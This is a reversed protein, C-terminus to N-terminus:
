KTPKQRKWREESRRDLEALTLGQKTAKELNSRLYNANHAKLSAITEEHKRRESEERKRALLAEHRRRKDTDDKKEDDDLVSDILAEDCVPRKLVPALMAQIAKRNVVTM